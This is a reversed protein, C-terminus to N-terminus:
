GRTSGRPVTAFLVELEGPRWIGIRVERVQGHQDILFSTPIVRVRYAHRVAGDRDIAVPYDVAFRRVFDRVNGEGESGPRERDRVNVGFVVFGQDRLSEYAAKLAPMEEQCPACWSVWFNVLVVRGRYASLAVTEGELGTLIFEPAAIDTPLMAPLKSPRSNTVRQVLWASLAVGSLVGILVSVLTQLLHELTM